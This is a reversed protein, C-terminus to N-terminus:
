NATWTIAVGGRFPVAVGRDRFGDLAQTAADPTGFQRM